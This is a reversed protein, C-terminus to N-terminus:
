PNSASITSQGQPRKHPMWRVFKLVIQSLTPLLSPRLLRSDFAQMRQDNEQLCLTLVKELTLDQTFSSGGTATFRSSDQKSGAMIQLVDKLAARYHWLTRISRLWGHGQGRQIQQYTFWNVFFVIHRSEEQLIPDFISFLAEPFYNSQRAVEFMGFAFYSDLCESFGFDTFAVEIKQPLQPEPPQPVEIKYHDLMFQILRAHRSEERAQLAIAERILPDAITKAFAAVM